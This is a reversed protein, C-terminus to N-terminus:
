PGETTRPYGTSPLCVSVWVSNLDPKPKDDNHFFELEPLAPNLAQSSLVMNANMEPESM